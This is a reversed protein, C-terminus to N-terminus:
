VGGKDRGKIPGTPGSPRPARNAGHSINKNGPGSRVGSKSSNIAAKGAAKTTGGKM